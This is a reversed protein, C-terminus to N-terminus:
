YRYHTSHAQPYTNDVLDKTEGLAGSRITLKNESYLPTDSDMAVKDCASRRTDNVSTVSDGDMAPTGGAM